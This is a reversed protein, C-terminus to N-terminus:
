RREFAITAALREAAQRLEGAAARVAHPDMRLAGASQVIEDAARPAAAPDTRLDHLAGVLRVVHLDAFEEGAPIERDHHRVAIVTLYQPLQWEQHVEGGIELHVRELVRPIRPDDRDLAVAGDLALMALSRLAVTRGVDHLLGGLYTRDARADRRRLALASAGAAVVVARRYLADFRPAFAALEARLRPQFLSKASLAGAVRGVEVLGLRTIADRVTEVEMLGRQAASNAANLVGASLAPDSQIIRALEPVEARDSAVLNLIRLSMTPVSAPGLRNARHHALVREALALEEPDEDLPEVAPPPVEVGLARAYPVFPPDPAAPQTETPPPAGPAAPPASGIADPERVWRALAALIPDLVGVGM